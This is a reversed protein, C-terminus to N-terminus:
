GLESRPLRKPLTDRFECNTTEVDLVIVTAILTNMANTTFTTHHEYSSKRCLFSGM